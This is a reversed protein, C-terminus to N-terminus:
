PPQFSRNSQKTQGTFGEESSQVPRISSGASEVRGEELSPHSACATRKSRSQRKPSMLPRLLYGAGISRAEDLNPHSTCATRKLRSQNKPAMFPPLLYGTGISWVEDPLTTPGSSLGSSEGITKPLSSRLLPAARKSRFLAQDDKSLCLLCNTRVQLFEKHTEWLVSLSIAIDPFPYESAQFLRAPRKKSGSLCEM